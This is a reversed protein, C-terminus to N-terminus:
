IDYIIHSNTYSYLNYFSSSSSNNDVNVNKISQIKYLDNRYNADGYTFVSKFVFIKKQTDKEQTLFLFIFNSPFFHEMCVCLAVSSCKCVTPHSATEAGCEAMKDQSFVM